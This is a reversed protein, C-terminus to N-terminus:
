SMHTKYHVINLKVYHTSWNKITNENLKSNIQMLTSQFLQFQVLWKMPHLNLKKFVECICILELNFLFFQIDQNSSLISMFFNAHLFCWFIKRLDMKKEDLFVKEFNGYLIKTMMKHSTMPESFKRNDKLWDYDLIVICTYIQV